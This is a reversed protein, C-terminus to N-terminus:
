VLLPPALARWWNQTQWDYSRSSLSSPDVGRVKANMALLFPPHFLPIYPVDKALEADIRNLARVRTGLDLM